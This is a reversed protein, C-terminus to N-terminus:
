DGKGMQLVKVTRGCEGSEVSFCRSASIMPEAQSAPSDGPPELRCDVGRRDSREVVVQLDLGPCCNKSACGM